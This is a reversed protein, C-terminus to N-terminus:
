KSSANSNAGDSLSITQFILPIADGDTLPEFVVLGSIGTSIVPKHAPPRVVPTRANSGPRGHNRHARFRIESASHLTVSTDRVVAHANYHQVRWLAIAPPVLVLDIM